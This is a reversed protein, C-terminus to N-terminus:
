QPPAPLPKLATNIDAVITDLKEESYGHYVRLIRGDRGIIVMHPIGRVGFAQQAQGGADSVLELHMSERMIRTARKFVEFKETNVAIVAMQEKGVQNQVNELIPLEKLCYGCWTAWFTVIVAKGAYNPLLIEDGSLTRGVDPPPVDGRRPMPTEACAATMRLGLLLGALLACTRNSLKMRANQILSGRRALATV